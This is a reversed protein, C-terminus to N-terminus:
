TPFVVVERVTEGHRIADFGSNIQELPIRRTVLEDLRLNGELYQQALWPFDRRPRGGGYSSRVIQKESMLSGWRFAVDQNVNVKGLFVVQGGPRVAELALRFAAEHGAAEFVYDAGRGQTMTRLREVVDAAANMRLDAGFLKARDLKADSVDAAVILGAGALKAGQIVNLGVAGCGIVLVSAGPEVRVKRTPAGVGTMVGCGILCALDFPIEKPVGIAGSEPVVCYQAHSSVVSFHHIPRGGRSLRSRGDLLMGKPQWRTFPECLIPLDRECYFCQGCHPNWSCVVHDGPKVQTVAAGVAEVLGAGEHGLVIPLPYALSGEIVELDTHCLGSAHVRVLVDTPALDGLEIEEIDLPKGVQNLVAAKFKM